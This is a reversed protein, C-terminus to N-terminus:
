GRRRRGPPSRGLGSVQHQTGNRNRGSRNHDKTAAARPRPQRCIDGNLSANAGGSRDNRSFSMPQSYGWGDEDLKCECQGRGSFTLTADSFSRM